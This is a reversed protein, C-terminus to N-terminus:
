TVKARGGRPRITVGHDVLIRRATEPRVAHKRATPILGLGGTYDAVLRAIQLDTLAHRAPRVTISTDRGPTLPPPAPPQQQGAWPATSEWSRQRIPRATLPVPLGTGGAVAFSTRDYTVPKTETM